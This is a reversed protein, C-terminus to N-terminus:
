VIGSAHLCSLQAAGQGIAAANPPGGQATSFLEGQHHPHLLAPPSVWEAVVWAWIRLKSNAPGLM